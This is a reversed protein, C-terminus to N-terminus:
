EGSRNALSEAPKAHAGTGRLRQSMNILWM